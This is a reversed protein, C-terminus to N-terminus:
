PLEGWRRVVVAFGFDVVVGFGVSVRGEAM